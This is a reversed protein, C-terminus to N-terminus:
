SAILDMAFASIDSAESGSCYVRDDTQEQKETFPFLRVAWLWTRTDAVPEYINGM